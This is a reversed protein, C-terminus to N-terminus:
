INHLNLALRNAAFCESMHCFVTNSIRCFDDFKKTSIIVSTDDAFIIPNALAYITQPLENM